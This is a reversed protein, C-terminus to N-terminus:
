FRSYMYTELKGKNNLKVYKDIFKIKGLIRKNKKYYTIVSKLGAISGEIVNNYDKAELAYKAWGAIFIIYLDDNQTLETFEDLISIEVDPNKRAWELIFINIKERKQREKYSPAAVLWSASKIVDKKYTAFDEDTELKYDEPFDYHQAHTTLSILVIFITCITLKIM